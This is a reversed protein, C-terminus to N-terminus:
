RLEGRQDDGNAVGAVLGRTLFRVGSSLLDSPLVSYSILKHTIHTACPLYICNYVCVLMCVYYVSLCYM